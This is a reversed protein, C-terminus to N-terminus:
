WGEHEHGLTTPHPGMEGRRDRRELDPRAPPRADYHGAALEGPVGVEEALRRFPTAWEAPPSPLVKPASHTERLAFITDIERRLIAADLHSLESILALDIL